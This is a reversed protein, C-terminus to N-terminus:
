FFAPQEVSTLYKSFANNAFDYEKREFYCVGLYYYAEAAETSNPFFYVVKEFEDMAFRWNQKNYYYCGKNYHQNLYRQAEQQSSFPRSKSAEVSSHLGLCITLILLLLFSRQKM